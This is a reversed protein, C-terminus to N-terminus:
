NEQIMHELINCCYQQPTAL